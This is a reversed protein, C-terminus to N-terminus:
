GSPAPEVDENRAATDAVVFRGGGAKKARYMAADAARLLGDLDVGSDPAVAVGISVSPQYRRGDLEMPAMLADRIRAALPEIAASRDLRYLAIFEDGGIRAANLQVHTVMEALRSKERIRNSLKILARDGAAHGFTDNIKKFDDMDILMLALAEGKPLRRLLRTATEEFSRRNALGTLPDLYALRHLESNMEHVEHLLHENEIDREISLRLNEHYRNAMVSVLTMYAAALASFELELGPSLAWAWYFLTAFIPASFTFFVRRDIANASLSAIPMGVLTILILLRASLPNDPGDFWVISSWILGSMLASATYTIMARRLDEPGLRRRLFRALLLRAGTAATLTVLWIVVGEQRTSEQLGLGVIMGVVWGTVLTAPVTHLLREILRQRVMLDIHRGDVATRKTPQFTETLM